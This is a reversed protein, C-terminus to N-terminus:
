TSFGTLSSRTRGGALPSTRFLAASVYGVVTDRDGSVDGSNCSHLISCSDAGMMKAASMVAVMPGGGCAEAQEAELDHMLREEDLRQLSSIVNADLTRATEYSHYHSLDSSALLLVSKERVVASLIEALRMCYSRRQDGMIIPLIKIERAVHQLFPLQVELSHENRHGQISSAVLSGAAASTLMAERMEEDVFVTGLPTQYAAGPFVSIGDFYERHSPGVLVITEIKVERLLAFARAATYGSYMYGAHPVVIACLLGNLQAPLESAVLGSVENRLQDAEEPYFMGAAAPPRIYSRENVQKKLLKQPFFLFM